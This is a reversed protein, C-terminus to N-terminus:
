GLSGTVPIGLATYRNPVAARLQLDAVRAYLDRAMLGQGSLKVGHM